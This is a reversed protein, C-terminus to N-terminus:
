SREAEIAVGIVSKVTGKDKIRHHLTDSSISVQHHIQLPDVLSFYTMPKQAKFRFHILNPMSKMIADSLLLPRDDIRQPRLSFQHQKKITAGYKFYVIRKLGWGLDQKQDDAAMPLHGM